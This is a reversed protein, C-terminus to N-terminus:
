TVKNFQAQTDAELLSIAPPNDYDSFSLLQEMDKRSAEILRSRLFPITMLAGEQALRDIYLPVHHSVTKIESRQVSLFPLYGPFM